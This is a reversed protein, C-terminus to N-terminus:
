SLVNRSLQRTRSWKLEVKRMDSGSLLSSFTEFEKIYASELNIICDNKLFIIAFAKELLDNQENVLNKCIFIM